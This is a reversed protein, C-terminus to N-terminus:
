QRNYVRVSVFPALRTLAGEGRVAEQRQKLRSWTFFRTLGAAFGKRLRRFGAPFGLGLAEAAM